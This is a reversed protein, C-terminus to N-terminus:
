PATTPYTHDNPIDPVMATFQYGNGVPGATLQYANGPPVASVALGNPSAGAQGYGLHKWYNYVATSIRLMQAQTLNRLTLSRHLDIWGNEIHGSSDIEYAVGPDPSDFASTPTIGAAKSASTIYAGEQAYAQRESIGSNKGFSSGCGALLIAVVVVCASRIVRQETSL